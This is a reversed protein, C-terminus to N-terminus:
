TCSDHFPISQNKTQRYIAYIKYFSWLTEDASGPLEVIKINSKLKKNPQLHVPDGSEEERLSEQCSRKLVKGSLLDDGNVGDGPVELYRSGKQLNDSHDGKSYFVKNKM